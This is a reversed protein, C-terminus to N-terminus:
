GRVGRLRKLHFVVVGLAFLALGGLLATISNTLVAEWDNYLMLHRLANVGQTWPLYKTALLDIEFFAGTFFSLPVIILTAVTSAQDPDDIFASLILGVAVCALVVVVGIVMAAGITVWYDGAVHVKVAVAVLFLVVTQAAGVVLWSLTSGGMMDLAGMKTLRLRNLTKNKVEMALHATVYMTVMMLGFVIIGPAMFDFVIFDQTEGVTQFLTGVVPGEQPAPGGPLGMGVFQRAKMTQTESYVGLFANVISSSFSYDLNGLTGALDVSAHAYGPLPDGVPISHARVESVIAADVIGQVASTFNRPIVVIAAVEEDKVLEEAREYSGVRKVKFYSTKGDEYKAEKLFGEVFAEGTTTSGKLVLLDFLEGASINTGMGTRVIPLWSPESTDWPGEGTDEDLVAITYTENVPTGFGFLLRFILMFSLPFVMIFLMSKRDRFLVKIGKVAIVVVKM